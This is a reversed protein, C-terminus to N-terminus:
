LNLRLIMDLVYIFLIYSFCLAYRFHDANKLLGCFILGSFAELTVWNVFAAPKVKLLESLINLNTYNLRVTRSELGNIILIM